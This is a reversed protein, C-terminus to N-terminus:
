DLLLQRLNTQWDIAAGRAMGAVVEDDDLNWEQLMQEALRQHDISHAPHHDALGLLELARPFNGLAAELRAFFIVGILMWPAAGIHDSLVLGERLHERANQLDGVRIQSNALNLLYLALSQQAGIERAMPIARRYYQMAKNYDGQEDALAGLNNLFVAARERNGVSLALTLGQHYLSEERDAKRALGSLVGLRNLALLLSNTDQIKEALTRSEECFRVASELKGLRWHTNGLGYLIQALLSDNQVSIERAMKLAAEFFRESETYEGTETKIQGHQVIAALLLRGSTIEKFCALAIDTHKIADPYEGSRYFTEGMKLHIYGEDRKRLPSILSLARKFFGFAESLASLSLAKEGAEVLIDAAKDGQGANEYHDAIIPLYEGRREGSIRDLWAAIREHYQTRQRKLVTEYTVDRLLSHKFAYETTDSFASIPHSFILEKARLAALSVQLRERESGIEPSIAELARDWFIRGVVSARQLAAREMSDLGDLRAQLVGALTPPINLKDLRSLDIGWSDSATNNIVRAEILMKLLEEIYFPNGDGGGVVLERLASPLSDVKKLIQRVLIRSDERTLPGLQLEVANPLGRGWNPYREYLEPRAACIALLPTNASLNGFLYSLADLSANDAWQIDDLVFILPHLSAAGQVLRLISAFGLSRLQTAEGLLGSLHQSQSFDYGILQGVIHAKEQARPDDPLFNQFGAEMKQFVVALSDSDQIQFRFAVIERLFAFPANTQSPASRGLFLYYDNPQPDTWTLFETVLRTKGIGMEGGLNVLQPQREAFMRQYAAQIQALESARGVLDTQVGEVGRTILHFARPRANLINYPLIEESRGKVRMAPMKEIDFIGRVLRYTDSSILIQGPQASQNLRAALNVTDGIATFEGTTGMQGVIAPGTNIGVRLNINEAAFIPSAQCAEHLINKMGLAARIAQEPDDEAISEAGWLAMVGHGMHKDIRGGHALIASDLQNWLSNTADRMDEPDSQEGLASLAPLDAFLVTIIKRKQSESESEAQKRSARLAALKEHLPILATEVVSDGLTARQAELATIAQELRNIELTM